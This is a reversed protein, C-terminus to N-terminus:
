RDQDHEARHHLWGSKPDGCPTPPAVMPELLHVVIGGENLNYKRLDEQDEGAELERLRRHAQGAHLSEVFVGDVKDRAEYNPPLERAIGFVDSFNSNNNSMSAAWRSRIVCVRGLHPCALRQRLDPAVLPQCRLKLAHMTPTKRAAGTCM